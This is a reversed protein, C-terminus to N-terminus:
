HEKAQAAGIDGAYAGRYPADTPAHRHFVIQALRMGECLRITHAFLTNQLELTVNGSFGPDIYVALAHDLGCRAATSRLYVVATLDTPMRLFERSAALCFAGPDLIVFGASPDMEPGIGSGPDVWFDDSRFKSETWFDPGLHLDISSPGVNCPDSDIVGDAILKLLEQHVLIM